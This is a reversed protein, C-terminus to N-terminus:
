SWDEKIFEAAREGIMITPANTNGSVIKPMISADAVRLSKVGHVRLRPDVVADPDGVPGMKCTSTPHYTTSVLHKLCCRWYSESPFDFHRCDPLEIKHLRADLSKMAETKVLNEVFEISKLFVKIDDEHTLYGSIIKPKDKPDSSRLSVRGRSKQRLLTPMTLVIHRNKNADIYSQAIERRMNYSKMTLVKIDEEHNQDININHFQIDPNDDGDVDIFMSSSLLGINTYRGSSMILYDFMDEEPSKEPQSYNFSLLVGTMLMHDQLNEGVKLDKIVDIGVHNLDNQPGIGSLMLLQPSNIAGASLVIEKRAKAMVKEGRANIFEVGTAILSDKDIIIRTVLTHKSVKLNKRDKAPSLFAKAASCRKGGVLTGQLSVFGLQSEGNCDTHVKYGLEEMGGAYVHLLDKLESNNYTSVSLMGGVGHYLDYNRSSLVEPAKLNESKKFYKLVDKYGWGYNGDKVWSDYDRPNGRVYLNANITSCGGLVKGRPWSCSNNVMGLCNEEEPDTKYVWDIDSGQLFQVLAPVESTKSPDGGAELLLINWNKEESLRSAVVSGASGAGVVIFDFEELPKVDYHPPYESPNALNYEATEIATHLSQVMESCVDQSALGAPPRTSCYRESSTFYSLYSLLLLRYLLDM